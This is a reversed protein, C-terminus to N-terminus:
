NKSQRPKFPTSERWLYEFYNKAFKALGVHDSWIAIMSEEDEAFVIVVERNDSIIGGGFMQERVRVEAVEALLKLLTPNVSNSAM